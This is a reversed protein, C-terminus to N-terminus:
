IILGRLGRPGLAFHGEQEGRETARYPSLFLSVSLTDYHLRIKLEADGMARAEHRIEM